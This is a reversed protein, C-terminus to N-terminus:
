GDRKLEMTFMISSTLPDLMYPEVSSQRGVVAEM